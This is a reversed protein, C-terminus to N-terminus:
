HGQSTLRSQSGQAATKAQDVASNGSGDNVALPIVAALPKGLVTAHKVFEDCHADCLAHSKLIVVTEGQCGSISCTPRLM